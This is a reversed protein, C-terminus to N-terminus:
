KGWIKGTLDVSGTSTSYTWASTGNSDCEYWFADDWNVKYMLKFESLSDSPLYRWGAFGTSDNPSNTVQLYAPFLNSASAPYKGHDQKFHELADRLLRSAGAIQFLTQFDQSNNPNYTPGYVKELHQNLVVFGAAALILLAVAVLLGNRIGNPRMHMQEILSLIEIRTILM